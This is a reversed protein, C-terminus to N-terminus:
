LSLANFLDAKVLDVDNLIAAELNIHCLRAGVLSLSALECLSFDRLGDAYSQLLENAKM